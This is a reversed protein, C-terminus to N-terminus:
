RPRGPGGPGGFGGRGGPGGPGGGRGGRMGGFNGFRYTLSLIIYRGLTNSESELHYNGSDTVSLSRQQGLIDYCKLSLTMSKKLLLKQLEANWM